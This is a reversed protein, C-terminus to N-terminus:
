TGLLSSRVLAGVALEGPFHTTSWTLPRTQVFAIRHEGRFHAPEALVEAFTPCFDSRGEVQPAARLDEVLVKAQQAPQIQVLSRQTILDVFRTVQPM